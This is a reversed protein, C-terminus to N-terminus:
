RVVLLGASKPLSAFVPVLTRDEAECALVFETGGSLIITFQCKRVDRDVSLGM